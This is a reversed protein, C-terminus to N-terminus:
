QVSLVHYMDRALFWGQETRDWIHLYRGHITKGNAKVLTEGIELATAPGISRIEKIQLQLDGVGAAFAAAYHAAIAERGILERAGPPLLIGRADYFAAVAEADGANYAASFEAMRAAIPNDQAWASFAVICLLPSLLRLM